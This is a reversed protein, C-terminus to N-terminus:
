DPYDAEKALHRWTELESTQAALEQAVQDAASRGLVLRFPPSEAFLAEIISRAARVPDGPAPARTSPSEKRRSGATNAYDAIVTRSQTLSRGAFDTRFAGPEVLMVRIGFPAVEKRLADSLGELAFKSAAYYGSGPAARRGAVSSLNVIWGRKNARMTPLVKQIMAALGFFNTEFLHRVEDEGGEEIAARYGFGANNVLVDITGFRALARDVADGRQFPDIVDLPL